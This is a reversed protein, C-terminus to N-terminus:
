AAALARDELISAAQERSCAVGDAACDAVFRAIAEASMADVFRMHSRAGNLAAQAPHGEARYHRYWHRKRGAPTVSGIIDTM